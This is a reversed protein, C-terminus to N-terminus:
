GGGRPLEFGAIWQEVTAHSVSFAEWVSRCWVDIMRDRDAGPKAALVDAMTVNGRHEPLLFTPWARKNNITAIAQHARQIEKGNYHCEIHLYLGALAFALRIPKDSASAHQAAFADVVHQHIFGASSHELTYYALEHYQETPNQLGM